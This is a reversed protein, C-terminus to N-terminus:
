IQETTGGDGTTGTGTPTDTMHPGILRVRGNGVTKGNAGTAIMFAQFAAAQDDSLTPQQLKAASRAPATIVPMEVGHVQQFAAAAIRNIADQTSDM